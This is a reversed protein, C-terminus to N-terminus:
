LNVDLRTSLLCHDVRRCVGFFGISVDEGMFREQLAAMDSWCKIPIVTNFCYDKKLLDNLIHAACIADPDPSVLLFTTSSTTGRGRRLIEAYATPFSAAPILVM